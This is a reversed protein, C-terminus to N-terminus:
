SSVHQGNTTKYLLATLPEKAKQLTETMVQHICMSKIINELLVKNTMKQIIFNNELFSSFWGEFVELPGKFPPHNSTLEESAERLGTVAIVM